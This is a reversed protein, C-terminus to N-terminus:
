QPLIQGLSSNEWKLLMSDDTLVLLGVSVKFSDYMLQEIATLTISTKGLGMGLIVAAIPHELIYNIAYQQYDHPKYQM